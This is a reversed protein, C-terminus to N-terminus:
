FNGPIHEYMCVCVFVCLYVQSILRQNLKEYCSFCEHNLHSGGVILRQTNSVPPNEAPNPVKTKDYLGHNDLLM